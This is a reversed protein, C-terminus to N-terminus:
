RTGAREYNIPVHVGTFRGALTRRACDQPTLRGDRATIREGVPDAASIWGGGPARVGPTVTVHLRWGTGTTECLVLIMAEGANIEAAAEPYARNYERAAEKIGTETM